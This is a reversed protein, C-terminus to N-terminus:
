TYPIVFRPDALCIKTGCSASFRSSSLSEDASFTSVSISRSSFVQSLTLFGPDWASQAALNSHMRRGFGRGKRVKKRRHCIGSRSHVMLTKRHAGSRSKERSKCGSCDGKTQLLCLLLLNCLTISAEGGPARPRM